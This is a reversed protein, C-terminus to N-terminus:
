ASAPCPAAPWVRGGVAGGAMRAVVLFLHLRSDPTPALVIWGCPLVIDAAPIAQLEQWRALAEEVVPATSSFPESSVQTAQWSGSAM